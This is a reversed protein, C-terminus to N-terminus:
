PQPLHFFLIRYPLPEERGEFALLLTRMDGKWGHFQPLHQCQVAHRQHASQGARPHYGDAFRRPAYVAVYARHESTVASILAPKSLRVSSPMSNGYSATCTSKM